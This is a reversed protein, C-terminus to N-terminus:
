CGCIVKVYGANAVGPGDDIEVQTHGKLGLEIELGGYVVM